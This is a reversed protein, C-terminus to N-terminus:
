FLRLLVMLTAEYYGLFAMFVSSIGRIYEFLPVFQQIDLTTRRFNMLYQQQMYIIGKM